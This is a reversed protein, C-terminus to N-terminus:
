SLIVYLRHELPQIPEGELLRFHGSGLSQVNDM